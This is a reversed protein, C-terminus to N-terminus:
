AVEKLALRVADAVLEQDAASIRPFIPLSLCEAAFAEAHPFAGASHGLRRYARQLHVPVPYHVRTEIGQQLLLEAVRDRAPVRVAYVHWNTKGLPTLVPLRLGPVDALLEAYRDAAERRQGNWRELHRLRVTLVAGQIGDMRYNFGVEDHEYRQGQGQNRLRRVREAWDADDTVLAGGEGAAGLNKGPYFSFCAAAGFSGVPRGALRSGHAQCADDILVLGRRGALETFADLDAPNGYLDVPLLARTRPTIAQEARAPDLCGTQPDVDAFVPTAGCYTVAWATGIFTFPSTVVEDGPQVGAALLALHLASTGSNVAICHRRQVYNAFAAEFGEVEPGLVFSSAAFVPELAAILEDRISQYQEPLNLYPVTM